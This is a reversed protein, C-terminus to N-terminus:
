KANPCAAKWLKDGVSGDVIPEPVSPTDQNHGSRVEKGGAMNKEYFRFAISRITKEGCKIESQTVSSLHVARGVTAPSSRDILTTIAVVDGPKKKSASTDIYVTVGAAETLKVWSVAASDSAAVLLILFCFIRM